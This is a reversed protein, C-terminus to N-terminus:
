VGEIFWHLIKSKLWSESYPCGPWSRSKQNCYITETKCHFDEAMGPCEWCPWPQITQLILMKWTRLQRFHSDVFIQSVRCPYKKSVLLLLGFFDGTHIGWVTQHYIRLLNTPTQALNRLQISWYDPFDCKKQGEWMLCSNDSIAIHYCNGSEDVSESQFCLM